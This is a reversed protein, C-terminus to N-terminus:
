SIRYHGEFIQTYTFLNYESRDGESFCVDDNM